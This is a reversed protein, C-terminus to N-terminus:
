EEDHTVEDKWERENEELKEDETCKNSSEANLTYHQGTNKSM